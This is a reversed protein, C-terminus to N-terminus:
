DHHAGSHQQGDHQQGEHRQGDHQGPDHHRGASDDHGGGSDIQTLVHDVLEDLLTLGDRVGGPSGPLNVILTRGAVGVVGRSLLATVVHASGRRRLEEEIGLLRKDILPLTMEPTADTPSVGTGGTTVILSVPQAIGAILAQGVAEGDAVVVPEDTVFGREGLWAAIVPGTLDVAEGRAARTSAVVVLATPTM